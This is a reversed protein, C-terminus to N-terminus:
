PREQGRAENRDPGLHQERWASTLPRRVRILADPRRGLEVDGPDDLDRLWAQGDRDRVIVQGGDPSIAVVVRDRDLRVEDGDHLLAFDDRAPSRRRAGTSRCAM